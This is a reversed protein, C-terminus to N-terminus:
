KSLHGALAQQQGIEGEAEGGDAESNRGQALATFVDSWEGLEEEIADTDAILLAGNDESGADEGAEQLMVPGSVRALEGANKLGGKEFGFVADDTRDIECQRVAGLGLVVLLEIQIGAGMGGGSGAVEGEIGDDAMVNLIDKVEVAAIFEAGSAM